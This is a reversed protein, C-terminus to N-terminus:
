CSLTFEGKSYGLQAVGGQRLAGFLIERMLRSKVQAQIVRDVERGGYKASFGMDILRERAKATLRLNVNKATLKVQLEKLKKDLILGAMHRDMDVFVVIESLRNVFEPKFLKKVHTLMAEGTTITSAFGVSAQRAFQAGANSTMILIVNRFYAKRGKNDTLTGYDMVQLLIDFIDSHAKEIEDLLLVCDPSRRVADTLLGGDDYGVYGAPSGILKAVTHKEQYESMDFRVLEVGLESALVRAVETKGVGTPGVFLLSALPKDDDTLGAKALQVAEVVAKVARDQGYIKDTIRRQLSDLRETDNEKIALADVKAVRALVQAILEKDVIRDDKHVKGLQLYAGAEDMLDIAKDPLYRDTIHKASMRVAFELAEDDYKVNHFVEYQPKLALIIGITEQISPELIDITQFRRIMGKSKTLNRNYEEYTTSGIFRIDGSELYPKLMNSADLTGNDVSGAGVINHIEDIYVIAHGEAAIGRMVDKFRKEFDGRYQTGAVLTGMDMSYIKFGLLKEPVNGDEIRKALGYVISTKGVGPEGLHLPNNKDKRCLVQITRELEAERGILPNHQKLHDNICTVFDRWTGTTQPQDEDLAYSDSISDTLDDSQDEAQAYVDILARLLEPRNDGFYVELFYAAWSDPLEMMAAIVMPIDVQEAEAQQAKLEAETFMEIYQNSHTPEGDNPLPTNTENTSHVLDVHLDEICGHLITQEAAIYFKKDHLLTDLVMEPTIFEFMSELALMSTIDIIRLLEPSYKIKNPM